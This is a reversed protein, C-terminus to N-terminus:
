ALIAQFSHLESALAIDQLPLCLAEVQAKAKVFNSVLVTLYTLSIEPLSNVWAELINKHEQLFYPM